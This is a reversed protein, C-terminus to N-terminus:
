RGRRIDLLPQPPSSVAGPRDILSRHNCLTLRDEGGSGRIDQGEVTLEGRVSDVAILPVMDFTNGRQFFLFACANAKDQSIM